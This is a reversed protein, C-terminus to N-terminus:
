LCALLVKLFHGKKRNAFLKSGTLYTYIRDETKKSENEVRDPDLEGWM